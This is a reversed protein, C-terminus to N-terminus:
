KKGWEFGSWRLEEDDDDEALGLGLLDVMRKVSQDVMDAVSRPQTYFAMVPPFLVAGARSVGLMNELHVDSLPTECAVLVLSRREKLTVGAARSILDADYGMRVAALIKMSCPVVIM